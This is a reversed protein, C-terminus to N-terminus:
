NAPSTQVTTAAGHVSGGTITVGHLVLNQGTIVGDVVEINDGTLVGGAAAGGGIIVAGTVGVEGAAQPADGSGVIVGSLSPSGSGVIVGALSPSGSGVIVGDTCVSTAGAQPADGSGVIVGTLSPSGSGVIVGALSPSGSGVIVGSTGPHGDSVIVGPFGPFSAGHAGGVLTSNVVRVSGAIVGEGIVRGEVNLGRFVIGNLVLGDNIRVVNNVLSARGGHESCSGAQARAATLVAFGVLDSVLIGFALSLSVLLAATPSLKGKKLEVEM